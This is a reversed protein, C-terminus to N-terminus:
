EDRRLFTQTSEDLARGQISMAVVGTSLMEIMTIAKNLAVGM